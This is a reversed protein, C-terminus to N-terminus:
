VCSFWLCVLCYCVLCIFCCLVAFLLVDPPHLGDALGLLAELEAGAAAEADAQVHHVAVAVARLQQGVVVKVEKVQGPAVHRLCAHLSPTLERHVPSYYILTYNLKFRFKNIICLIPAM